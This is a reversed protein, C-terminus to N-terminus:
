LVVGRTREVGVARSLENFMENTAGARRAIDVQRAVAKLQVSEVFRIANNNFCTSHPNL